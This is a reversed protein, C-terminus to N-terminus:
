FFQSKLGRGKPIELLWGQPLYPCKGSGIMEHAIHKWTAPALARHANAPTVRCWCCRIALMIPILMRTSMNISLDSVICNIAPMAMIAKVVSFMSFWFLITAPPPTCGRTLSKLDALVESFARCSNLFIYFIDQSYTSEGCHGKPPAQLPLPSSRCHPVTKLPSVKGLCHSWKM